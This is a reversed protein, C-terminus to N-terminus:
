VFNFILKFANKTCTNRPFLNSLIMFLHTGIIQRGDNWEPNLNQQPASLTSQFTQNIGRLIGRNLNGRAHKRHSM